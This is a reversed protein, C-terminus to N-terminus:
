RAIRGEGQAKKGDLKGLYFSQNALAAATVWPPPDGVASGPGNRCKMTAM